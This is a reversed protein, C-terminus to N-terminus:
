EKVMITEDADSASDESVKFGLATALGMSAPNAAFIGAWLKMGPHRKGYEETCFRIFDKMLGKGRYPAYSRYVVTHWSGSDMERENEKREEESLHKMSKRGLPKPGFWALAALAGTEKEVLAFMTREKSAYWDEYAGKGFREYDSTKQLETDSLDLARERLQKILEADLGEKVTFQAGDASEASGLEVSEYLPLPREDREKGSPRISLGM